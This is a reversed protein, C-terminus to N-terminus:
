KPAKVIEIRLGLPTLLRELTDLTPNTEGRLVLTIIRPSLNSLKALRYTTVGQRAMEEKLTDAIKTRM